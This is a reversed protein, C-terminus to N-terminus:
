NGEYRDQKLLTLAKETVEEARIDKICRLGNRCRPIRGFITCPSCKTEASICVHGKGRPAWKEPSGPGFISLTRTGLGAALHMIGSDNTALLAAEKLLAATQAITLRGCLNLSHPGAQSIIHGSMIDGEGGIAVISHGDKHLALAVKKFGEVPWQKEPMSGGPFVAIIKRGALPCVLQRVKETAEEPVSIFPTPIEPLPGSIEAALRLFSEMEYSKQRYPVTRSFMSRRINTDFGIRVPARTLFAAVASLRYWQETDIVIDYSGRLAEFLGWQKDYLFVKGIGPCLSFVDGNRKEALIDIIAEPYQKKISRIAPILLVADGIGGPRIILISKKRGCEPRPRVLTRALVASPAGLIADTKKLLETKIKL